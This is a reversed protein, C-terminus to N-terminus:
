LCLLTSLYRDRGGQGRATPNIKFNRSSCDSWCHSPNKGYGECCGRAVRHNRESQSCKPPYPPHEIKRNNLNNNINCNSLAAVLSQVQSKLVNIDGMELDGDQDLKTYSTQSSGMNPLSGSSFESAQNSDRLPTVHQQNYTFNKHVYFESASGRVLRFDPLSELENALDQIEMVFLDYSTMSINSRYVIGKRLSPVLASKILSIKSANTPALNDAESCLQGFVARVKAFPRRPGQRITNLALQAKSAEDRDTFLEELHQIFLTADWENSKKNDKIIPAVRKQADSPLCYTFIGYCFAKEDGISARIREDESFGEVSLLFTSFESPNGSWRPWRDFHKHTSTDCSLASKQPM